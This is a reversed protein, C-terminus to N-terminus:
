RDLFDYCDKVVVQEITLGNGLTLKLRSHREFRDVKKDGIYGDGSL